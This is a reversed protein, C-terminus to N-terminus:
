REGGEGNEEEDDDEIVTGDVDIPDGEASFNPWEDEDLEALDEDIRDERIAPALFQCGKAHAAFNGRCEAETAGYFMHGVSPRGGGVPIIHVILIKAM